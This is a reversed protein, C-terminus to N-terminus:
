FDFKRYKIFVMTGISIIAFIGLIIAIEEGTQPIKGKITTDDKQINNIIIQVDKTKNYIDVLHVTETTNVSYEKSLTMGDDSLTWGEVKKVPKNTKMTATVPSSTKDKTSYTVIASLEDINTIIVEVDATMNEEDMLHVVETINESYDKTLTMKDESLTWGNVKNVPKNTKITATVTKTTKITPDYSVAAILPEIVKSLQIKPSSSLTITYNKADVDTYTLVVKENTAITKELLDENKMDKIKLKYKLIAVEDGKLTGIDWTITGTEEDIEESVTGTSPTGVYSFEFNETIDEPFHDIIKVTNIDPQLMKEIDKYISETIITEINDNSFSYMKGYTPNEITGYLKQVYSSGDFDFNWEGTTINYYSKDYSTDDPRLLIFDINSSKLALIENKTYTSVKEHKASAAEEGTSYMSLWGGYSDLQSKVGIAIDPVGDYLSILIKNTKKSYSEKALRISAQLNQNYYWKQPNMNNIDTIIKNVDNTLESVIEANDATGLVDYESNESVGINNGNEDYKWENITGKIGIIGIKTKSNYNFIKNALTRIDEVRKELKENDRVLNESVIIYIETNEYKEVESEVKKAENAVKLEITVEGTDPDSDVITKSIYGQDNELYKTESALQIIDLKTKLEAAFSFSFLNFIILLLLLISIIRKFNKM